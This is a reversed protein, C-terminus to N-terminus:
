QSIDRAPMKEIYITQTPFAFEIKRSQFERFIELLIKEKLDMFTNYDPDLVFFVFEFDLSSAGYASFHCRDFKLKDHKEVIKKIMEPIKEIQDASTSYTIGFNQVVRRQEMRKFNQVRSELLDKNSLILQEGSISRLRTTKIGIHEVTGKESGTVVMDGVVFPKDLVISLSALLDGLVNQAALAVAIGGVGLGAVLASINIGLTSLSVLVVISIFLVQIVTYLLGLAAASSPDNKIKEDLFQVRWNKILYIGWLAIQYSCSVILLFQIISNALENRPLTKSLLTFICVSLVWIKIGGIVDLAVDDWISTTSEAIKRLGNAFIKLGLKIITALTLSLALAIAWAAVPNEKLLTQIEAINLEMLKLM